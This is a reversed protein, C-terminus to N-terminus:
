GGVKPRDAPVPRLRGVDDLHSRLTLMLDQAFRKIDADDGGTAYSRFLGVTEGLVKRQDDIYAKDFSAADRSKLDDLLVQQGADLKESPAALGARSVAQKLRGAIVTHEEVMRNAFGRVPNSRSRELALKSSAIEFQGAAAVAGLFGEASPTAAPQVAQNTAQGPPPDAALAATGISTACLLFLVVRIM